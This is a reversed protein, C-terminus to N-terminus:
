AVDPEVAVEPAGAAIWRALTDVEGPEIVKISVEGLRDLPPMKGSRLKKILLSDDPKGPVIAPGSKGGRLMSQKTRLDLAAEKVHRGHCVTCRRLLIPIVDHQTLALEEAPGGKAGGAIWAKIAAVEEASLRDKKDPPMLGDHVKEFLLSKEPKGPVVVPGSESGKLVGAATRLDLDAKLAKDGHCKACRSQFLPRVSDFTNAPPEAPVLANREAGIAPILGVLVCLPLDFRM